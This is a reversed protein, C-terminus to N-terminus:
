IGAVGAAHQGLQLSWRADRVQHRPYAKTAFNFMGAPKSFLFLELRPCLLRVPVICAQQVYVKSYKLNLLSSPDQM